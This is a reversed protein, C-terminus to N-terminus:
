RMRCEGCEMLKHCIVLTPHCGSQGFVRELEAHNGEGGTNLVLHCPFHVAPQSPPPKISSTCGRRGRNDENKLSLISELYTHSRCYCCDRM